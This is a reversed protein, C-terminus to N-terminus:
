RKKEKRTGAYMEYKLLRCEIDANDFPIRQSTRLGVCKMLARNGTFICATYGACHSKFFDGIRKYHSRM